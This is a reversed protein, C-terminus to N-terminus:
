KNKLLNMKFEAKEKETMQSYPKSNNAEFGKPAASPLNNAPVGKILEPYTQKIRNVEASLTEQVVNGQEDLEITNVNIFNNYEDKKFGGLERIVANKKHYNIFQDKEQARTSAIQDMQAQTKEYLTKWQENEKLSNMEAAEKEAKLQNLLAETEKLKAKYKHMDQNVDQYAKAPVFEAEKETATGENLVENSMLGEKTVVM